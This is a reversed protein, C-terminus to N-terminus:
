KTYYLTEWDGAAASVHNSRVAYISDTSQKFALYGYVLNVKDEYHYAAIIGNTSDYQYVESDFSITGDDRYGVEM